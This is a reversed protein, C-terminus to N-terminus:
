EQAQQVTAKLEELVTDATGLEKYKIEAPAAAALLPSSSQGGTSQLRTLNYADKEPITVLYQQAQFVVILIPHYGDAAKWQRGLADLERALGAYGLSVAEWQDDLKDVVLMAKAQDDVLVPFYWLDTPSIVSAVRTGAQFKALAAPTISHLQFPAGLRIQDATEEPIFGFDEVLEPTMQALFPALGADAAQQVAAPVNATLSLVPLCVLAFVFLASTLIKIKSM